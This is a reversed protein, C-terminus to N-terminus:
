FVKFQKLLALGTSIYIVYGVISHITQGLVSLIPVSLFTGKIFLGAIGLSVIVGVIWALWDFYNNKRAM